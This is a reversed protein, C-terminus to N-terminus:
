GTYVHLEGAILGTDGPTFRAMLVDGAGYFPENNDEGTDIAVGAVTHVPQRPARHVDNGMALSGENWVIVSLGTDVPKGGAALFLILTGISAPGTDQSDPVWRVQQIPGFLPFGGTDTVAATGDGDLELIHKKLYTDPM